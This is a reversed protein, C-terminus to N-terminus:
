SVARRDMAEDGDCEAAERLDRRIEKIDVLNPVDQRANEPDKWPRRLFGVVM